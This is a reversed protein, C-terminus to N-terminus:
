KDIQLDATLIQKQRLEKITNLRMLNGKRFDVDSFRIRELGRSLDSVTDLLSYEPQFDPALHEFLDFNVRYSRKDPPADKNINVLVEPILRQVALALDRVQYNWRNSGTNVTLFITGSEVPRQSAWQIARAMDLVHILPRWPSGDSLINILRGTTAGAVFDNLVLDL